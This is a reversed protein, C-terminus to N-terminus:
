PLNVLFPPGPITAFVVSPADPVHAGDPFPRLFLLGSFSWTVLFSVEDLAGEIPAGDGGQRVAARAEGDRALTSSEEASATSSPQVLRRCVSRFEQSLRQDIVLTPFHRTMLIQFFAGMQPEVIGVWM